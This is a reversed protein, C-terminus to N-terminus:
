SSKLPDRILMVYKGSARDAPLYQEAVRQIDEPTVKSINALVEDKPPRGEMVYNINSITAANIPDLEVERSYQGDIQNATLYAARSKAREVESEGFKEKSMDGLVNFIIDLAKEQRRTNVRGRVTLVGCNDRGGYFSGIEYALGEDSRLRKMLGSTWSRGLIQSAIRMPASDPHCEHPVVMGIQVYSNSAEPNDMNILDPAAVHRISRNELPKVETLQIPSGPGRPQNGFNKGVIEIINSPLKGAAILVMNNPSYGRAHFDRLQKETVNQIVDENGLVFYTHDRDRMLNTNYFRYLDNFDPAGKRKEIERLVVKKQKERVETDLLPEFVMQSAMDCYEPFQGPMMGWPISTWTRSTTANSYGFKGRIKAQEQPTYKATGGEIFMHELFHAMGEEGTKEHLAGHNISLEALVTETPTQQWALKFGNPFEHVEFNGEKQM